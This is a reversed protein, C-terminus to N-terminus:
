GYSDYQEEYYVFNFALERRVILEELFAEKAEVSVGRAAKVKLAITLPNIQGFHLYPSLSSQYEQGPDNRLSHYHKLSDKTFRELRRLAQSSGGKFQSVPQVLRDVDLRNTLQHDPSLAGGIRIGLSDKRPARLPDGAVLYQEWVRHIKRRITAAAWESKGSAEEIPVVLDGEIQWVPCPARDAVSARWSRQHVLYGRDTVLLSAQGALRLAAEDPPAALVALQIGLEDATRIAYLLAPNDVVRVSAQMWYLVYSGRQVEKDNLQQIRSSQIM